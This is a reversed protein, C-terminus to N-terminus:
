GERRQLPADAVGHHGEAFPAPPRVSSWVPETQFRTAPTVMRPESAPLQRLGTGPTM